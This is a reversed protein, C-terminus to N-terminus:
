KANRVSIVGVITIAGVVIDAWHYVPGAPPFISLALAAATGVGAVIGKAYRAYWAAAEAVLAPDIKEAADIVANADTEITTAVEAPIAPAITADTM